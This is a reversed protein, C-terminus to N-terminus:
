SETFLIITAATSITLSPKSLMKQLTFVFFYSLLNFKLRIQFEFLTCHTFVTEEHEFDLISCPQRGLYYKHMHTTTIISKASVFLQELSYAQLLLLVEERKLHLM